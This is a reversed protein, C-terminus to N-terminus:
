AVSGTRPINFIPHREEILRREIAQLYSMPQSVAAYDVHFDNVTPSWLKETIAQIIRPDRHLQVGHRLTETSRAYLLKNQEYLLYVGRQEPIREIPDRVLQFGTTFKPMKFSAPLKTHRGAKRISLIAWRYDLPTHGPTISTAISDFRRALTPDCLVDDISAGTKYRLQTAAFESAFAFESYPVSYRKSGLDPLKKNKRANLLAKNIQTDTGEIGIERCKRLFM